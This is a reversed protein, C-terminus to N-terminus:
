KRDALVTIQVLTGQNQQSFISLSGGISNLYQKAHFLGLGSGENTKGFSFGEEGLRDIVDSPIGKGRDQISLVIQNKIKRNSIQIEISDGETAEIANNIINSLIRNFESEKLRATSEGSQFDFIFNIHKGPFSSRKEIAM